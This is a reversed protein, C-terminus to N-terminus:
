ELTLRAVSVKTYPALDIPRDNYTLRVGRANGVTLTFPPMGTVSQETGAPNLRSFITRGDRDRIEVWSDMEFTFHLAATQPVAAPSAPPNGGSGATSAPADKPSPAESEPKAPVSFAPAPGEAAVPALNATNGSPAAAPRVSVPQAAPAVSGAVPGSKVTPPSGPEGWYFEYAGLAAAVLLVLLLYRPSRHVAPSPFPVNESRPMRLMGEARPLEACMSSLVQDPDLKLLRAYNRIFGRVFVPGPLRDFAGTELAEVQRETLRLQRAVESLSLNQAIRTAKLVSRPAPESRQEYNEAESM